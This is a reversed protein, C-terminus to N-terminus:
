FNAGESADSVDSLEGLSGSTPRQAWKPQPSVANARLAARVTVRIDEVTQACYVPTQLVKGNWDAMRLEKPLGTLFWPHQLIEQM